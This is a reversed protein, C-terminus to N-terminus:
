TVPARPHEKSAKLHEACSEHCTEIATKIGKLKEVLEEEAQEAFDKLRALTESGSRPALLVGAAAGLLAGGVFAMTLGALVNNQKEM